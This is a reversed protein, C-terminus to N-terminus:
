PPSSGKGIHGIYVGHHVPLIESCVLLIADNLTAFRTYADPYKERHLVLFNVQILFPSLFNYM